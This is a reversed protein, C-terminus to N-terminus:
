GGHPTDRKSSECVGKRGLVSERAIMAGCSGEKPAASLIM